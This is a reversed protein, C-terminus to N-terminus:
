ELEGIREGKIVAEGGTPTVLRSGCALCDVKSASRDFVVQENRCDPCRVKLFRSKTEPM